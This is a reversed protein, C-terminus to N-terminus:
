YHFVSIGKQPRGLVVAFDNGEDAVLLFQAVAPDFADTLGREIM